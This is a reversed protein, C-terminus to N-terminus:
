NEKMDLRLEEGNKLSRTVFEFFEPPSDLPIKHPLDSNGHWYLDCNYVRTHGFPKHLFEKRPTWEKEETIESGKPHFVVKITADGAVSRFHTQVLYPQLQARLKAEEQEDKEENEKKLMCIISEVFVRDHVSELLNLVSEGIDTAECRQRRPLAEALLERLRQTDESRDQLSYIRLGLKLDKRDRAWKIMWAEMLELDHPLRKEEDAETYFFLLDGLPKGRFEMPLACQLFSKSPDWTAKSEPHRASAHYIEIFVKLGTLVKDGTIELMLLTQECKKSFKEWLTLGLKSAGKEATEAIANASKDLTKEVMRTVVPQLLTM